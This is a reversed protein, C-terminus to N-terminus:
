TRSSQHSAKEALKKGTNSPRVKASYTTSTSMKKPRKSLSSEKSSLSSFLEPQSFISKVATMNNAKRSKLLWTPWLEVIPSWDTSKRTPQSGLILLKSTWKIMLLSIRLNSIETSLAKEKCTLWYMLWKAWSTDELTKEWAEWQRASTSSFVVPSTSLYSTCLTRSKDAQHSALKVTLAGALSISSTKINLDM